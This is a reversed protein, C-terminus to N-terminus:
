REVEEPGIATLAVKLDARAQALHWRVTVRGIGLLLAIRAVPQGELESLVLVARRRPPLCALVREVTARAVAAAEPDGAAAPGAAPSALAEDHRERRVRRRRRRDRCLNVLTRVLWAEAEGDGAPLRGVHRAARLFADQVLDRAEEADGVMRRALHWLRRHHADFLAALREGTASAADAASMPLAMIDDV